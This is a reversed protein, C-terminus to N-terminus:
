NPLRYGKLLIEEFMAKAMPITMRGEAQETAAEVAAWATENKSHILFEHGAMTLRQVYALDPISEDNTIVKGEILGAEVLLHIHELFKHFDEEPPDPMEYVAMGKLLPRDEINKLISRALEIDFKM